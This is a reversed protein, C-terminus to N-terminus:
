SETPTYRLTLAGSRLAKSEALQLPIRKPPMEDFLRTGDGVVIPLVIMSLEDLLGNTLLWRVLTPSGLVLVDGESERRVQAVREPVGDIITVGDHSAKELTSSMVYTPTADLFALMPSEPHTVRLQEYGEYTHRGLLLTGVSDTGAAMAAQVEEDFYPYHWDDSANVIGDLSVFIGTVIKGM